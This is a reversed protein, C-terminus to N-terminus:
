NKNFVNGLYEGRVPGIIKHRAQLITIPIWPSARPAPHNLLPGAAWEDAVQCQATGCVACREQVGTLISRHLHLALVHPFLMGPLFLVRHRQVGIRPDEGLGSVTPSEKILLVPCGLEAM